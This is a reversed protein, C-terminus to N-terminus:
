RKYVQVAEALATAITHADDRTADPLLTIRIATGALDKPVGLAAMVHSPEEEGASCASRTSVAVGLADMAVVAMQAELGPVSVNLNNAVRHAGLAPGNLLVSPVLKKIEDWLFDRVAATRAGAEGANKQAEALAVAFAGAAAVNETGSRIGGEQGGGWLIPEVQTGRKIYLAGVGKPGLIKQADLTLLDAGLREVKIDMWLPAQAVDIHFYLPLANPTSRSQRAHRIVKAVERVPEITGVESNVLQISVLVTEDNIVEALQGPAVLGETDVPLETTYLGERDLIALPQLVSKHEIASTIANLEGHKILLPRLLGHIALNNAETGSATFVIEDAHAGIAGAILKRARELEAKAKVAETHLGGPNAPFTLLREFEARAAASM